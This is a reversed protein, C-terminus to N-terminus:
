RRRRHRLLWGVVEGLVLGVVATIALVVWLPQTADFFLWTVKTDDTNQAVFVVLAVVLVIAAILAGNVRSSTGPDPRDLQDAM